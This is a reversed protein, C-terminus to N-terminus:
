VTSFYQTLATDIAEVLDTIFSFVDETDQKTITQQSLPITTLLCDGQHVIQNRRIVINKLKIKLDNSSIPNHMNKSIVDWKNTEGWIYSLADSIKDPDQFALRSHSLTVANEFVTDPYQSSNISILTDMSLTFNGYKPTATLNGRYVEVMGWLVVDHIYKDLASVALVWEWRLLDSIDLAVKQNHLYDYVGATINRQNILQYFLAKAYKM